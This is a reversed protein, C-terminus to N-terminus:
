VQVISVVGGSVVMVAWGSASVLLAVALKENVPTPAADKSHLSSEPPKTAQVDGM